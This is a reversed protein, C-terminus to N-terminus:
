DRLIVGNGDYRTDPAGTLLRIAEVIGWIEAVIPGLGCLFSGALCVILQITARSTNGLYFNHVGFAGFLLGLLGAALRSKQQYGMPPVDYTPKVTPQQYYVPQPQPQQPPAYYNQSQTYAPQPEQPAQQQYYPEQVPQQPAAPEPITDDLKLEPQAQPISVNPFQPEEAKLEPVNVDPTVPVQPETNQPNQNFDTM